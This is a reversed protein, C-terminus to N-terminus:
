TRLEEPLIARATNRFTKRWYHHKLLIELSTVSLIKMLDGNKSPIKWSIVLSFTSPLFRWSFNGVSNGFFNVSIASSTMLCITSAFQIFCQKSYTWLIKHLLGFSSNFKSNGFYNVFLIVLYITSLIGLSFAWSIIKYFRSPNVCLSKFSNEISLPIASRIESPIELTIWFFAM